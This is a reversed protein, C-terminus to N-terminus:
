ERHTAGQVSLQRNVFSCLCLLKVSRNDSGPSVGYLPIEKWLSDAQSPFSEVAFEGERTGSSPTSEVTWYGSKGGFQLIMANCHRTLKQQVVSLIQQIDTYIAGGGM